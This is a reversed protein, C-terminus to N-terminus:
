VCLLRVRLLYRAQHQGLRFGIVVGISKGANFRGCILLFRRHQDHIGFSETLLQIVEHSAERVCVGVVRHLRIRFRRHQFNKMITAAVKIDGATVFEILNQRQTHTTVPDTKSVGDLLDLVDAVGILLPHTQKRRIRFRVQAINCFGSRPRFHKHANESFARLGCVPWQRTLKTTMHIHRNFKANQCSIQPQLRVTYREMNARLLAINAGPVRRDSLYLPDELAQLFFFINLHFHDVEPAPERRVVDAAGVRQLGVCFLNGSEQM